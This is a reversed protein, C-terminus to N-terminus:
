TPHQDALQEWDIVLMPHLLLAVLLTGAAILCLFGVGAMPWWVFARALRSTDSNLRNDTVKILAIGCAVYLVALVAMFLPPGSIFDPAM